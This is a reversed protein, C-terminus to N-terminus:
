LDVVVLADRRDPAGSRAALYRANPSLKAGSIPASAFFSAIPPL